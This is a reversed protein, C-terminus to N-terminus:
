FDAPKLFRPIRGVQYQRVFRRDIHDKLKWMWRNHCTFTGYQAIATRDGLNLIRLINRKPHYPLLTEGRLCRALNQWLVPGQGVAYVDAKPLPDTVRTATDGVVFIPFESIIQQTERVALFGDPAKPLQFLELLTPPAAGAAWVVIEAPLDTGDELHLRHDQYRVARQGLRVAIGRKELERRALARTNEHFESLIVEDADLLLIKANLKQLKLRFDLCCAIEVGAPGAGVIIVPVPELEARQEGRDKLRDRLIPYLVDGLPKIPIVDPQFRWIESGAPESGIGISAVDYRVTPMDLALAIESRQPNFGIAGSKILRVNSREALRELDIDREYFKYQGALVGPLMGSYHVIGLPAILTLRAGPIPHKGWKRIIHLHTPEGGVLVIDKLSSQSNPM